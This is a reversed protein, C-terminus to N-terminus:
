GHGGLAAIFTEGILVLMLVSVLSTLIGGFLKARSRERRANIQFIRGLRLLLTSSYASAIAM